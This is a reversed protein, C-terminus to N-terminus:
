FSLANTLDGMPKGIVARVGVDRTQLGPLVPLSYRHTIFRLVSATDYATHDVTGKKAHPSIILAPIRTGPGALDGAPPAVHDWFGGNEDYTVVVLMHKWQPSAQLKAILDAIHADGDAVSAYGAHQNDFGAPKYFAVPPLAGSQADAVLDDYDKLHAARDQAGTVPDFRKFYNFPHHHAQLDLHTADSTGFSNAYYITKASTFTGTASNYTYSADTAAKWGQAYWAWDIQKASLLDAITTQTQAPLTTAAKPDAYLPSNGNDDSPANGSPQFAPQMTNVARYGDGAGFYDLPAINGTKYATAGNLASAAQTPKAALQPVGNFHLTAAADLTNISMGNAAVTAAPVTPVCACILYQHNLFSGGFAGQFFNDALVNQKALRWMQMASGDYYGMVLGGADADAVFMDNKGGNIQMGNEFFRHYLDRTILSQKAQLSNGNADTAGWAPTAADIQFPRNNWVNTTMAQTIAPTQGAASLGGWAPPLQSLVTVGDRDKQPIYNKLANAIGNAGPFTGYLNNFARNEAYIVVVNTINDLALRNRLAKVLNGRAGAEAAAEAIRNQLQDNETLLAAKQASDTLQTFNGSLVEAPVGLRAALAARASNHRDHGEDSERGDRDDRHDDKDHDANKDDILAQLETSIASIVTQNRGHDAPARYTINQPTIAILAGHGRLTFAGSADTKTRPKEFSCRAAGNDFCVTVGSLAEGGEGLVVGKTSEVEAAQVSFVASLAVALPVLRFAKM